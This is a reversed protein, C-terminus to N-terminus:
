IRKQDSLHETLLDAADGTHSHPGGPAPVQARRAIGTRCYRVM